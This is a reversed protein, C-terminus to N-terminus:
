SLRKKMGSSYRMYQLKADDQLGVMGMVEIIRKKLEQRKIGYLGGFFELNQAGSLRFYFTREDGLVLGISKRANYEDLQLDHGCISAIGKQPIILGSLIRILTTKGAGNPGLLTFIQGPQVAFSVGSLAFQKRKPYKFDIEELIIM